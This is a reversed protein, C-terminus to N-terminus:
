TQFNGENHRNALAAELIGSRLTFSKTEDMDKQPYADGMESSETEHVEKIRVLWPDFSGPLSKSQPQNRSDFLTTFNNKERFRLPNMVFELPQQEQRDDDDSPARLKRAFSQRVHITRPKSVRTLRILPPEKPLPEFGGETEPPTSTTTPLRQRPNEHHQVATRPRSPPPPPAGLVDIARLFPQFPVQDHTATAKHKSHPAAPAQVEHRTSPSRTRMKQNRDTWPGRGRDHDIKLGGYEDLYSVDAM